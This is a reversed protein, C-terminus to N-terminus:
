RARPLRSDAPGIPPAGSTGALERYTALVVKACHAWSFQAARARGADALRERETPDQDLRDLAHAMAVHDEPDVLVAAEGAVEALAGRNSTVVPTGTTMAEVVPHGYGEYLSPHLYIRAANYLANLTAVSVHPLLAVRGALRPDRVLRRLEPDNRWFRRVIVMQYESRDGFAEAFARVAGVHNKHPSADGVTLIFPRKPDVLGRLAEACAARDIPHIAADAAPYAVRVDGVRNPWEGRIAEKTAHSPTVVRDAASMTARLSARHFAGGVARVVASHSIFRPDVIWMLDHVTTVLPTDLGRPVVAFPSHFVDFRHRRLVPALAVRTFPSNPAFPFRLESVRPDDILPSRGAAGRVLLLELRRDQALLAEILNRTHTGIGSGRGTLYRADIAVRM